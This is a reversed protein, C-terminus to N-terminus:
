CRLLLPVAEKVFTRAGSSAVLASFDAFICLSQWFRSPAPRVAAGSWAMTELELRCRRRRRKLWAWWSSSWSSRPSPHLASSLKTAGRELHRQPGDGWGGPRSRQLLRVAHLSLAPRRLSKQTNCALNCAKNGKPAYRIAGKAGEKKALNSARVCISRYPCFVYRIRACTPSWDVQEREDLLM